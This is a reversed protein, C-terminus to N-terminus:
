SNMMTTTTKKKLSLLPKKKKQKKPKRQFVPSDITDYAQKMAHDPGARSALRSIPVNDDCDGSKGEGVDAIMRKTKPTPTPKPPFDIVGKTKPTLTPKPPVDTVVVPPPNSQDKEEFPFSMTGGIKRMLPPPTFVPEPPPQTPPVPPLSIATVVMAGKGSTHDDYDTAFPSYEKGGDDRGSADNDEQNDDTVEDSDEEIENGADIESQLRAREDASNEDEFISPDM